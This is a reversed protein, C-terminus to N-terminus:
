MMMLTQYEIMAAQREQAEFAAMQADFLLAAQEAQDAASEVNIRAQDDEWTEIAEAVQEPTADDPIDVGMQRYVQATHSVEMIVSGNIATNASIIFKIGPVGAIPNYIKFEDPTYVQKGTNPDPAPTVISEKGDWIKYRRAM